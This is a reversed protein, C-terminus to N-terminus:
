SGSKTTYTQELNLNDLSAVITCKLSKYSSEIKSAYVYGAISASFTLASYLAVAVVM